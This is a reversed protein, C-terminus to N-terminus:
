ACLVCVCVPLTVAHRALGVCWPLPPPPWSQEGVVTRGLWGGGEGEGKETGRGKQQALDALAAKLKDLRLVTKRAGQLGEANFNLPTRYQSTVVLYRFARLELDTQLTARLTLFNGKSKSMKENDVNVFGNHVWCRCFAQGTAAESQAIENEHHPFVLDVGGAHVDLTEGLFRRAMASCEIHWGPRGKGLATEWFVPGDEEKYAKWLAFDKADGKEAVYEDADNIGGGEGAGDAMGGFDLWALKGYEKFKNVRFYVSGQSEYAYGRAVLDQVMQVIDQIHETARPYHSAPLINLAHLDEFFISAYKNTLEPLSLNDRAMRKIIKDDVDTLNCVHDVAYGSYLLWRKLVDYTLFARFNGIHAFDYVTPGCSYFAV